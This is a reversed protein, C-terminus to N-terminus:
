AATGEPTPDPTSPEPATMDDAGQDGDDRRSAHNPHCECYSLEGAHLVFGRICKACGSLPSDAHPHANNDDDSKEEPSPGRARTVALDTRVEGGDSIPTAKVPLTSHLTSAREPSRQETSFHANNAVEVSPMTLTSVPEPSGRSPTAVSGTQGTEVDEQTLTTEIRRRHAMRAQRRQQTERERDRVALIAGQHEDPTPVDVLDLVDTGIILRYEDSKGARRNGRRVVEILQADRLTKLARRVVASSVECEIAARAVGPFIHSGDNNARGALYFAVLKVTSGLRARRVLDLWDPVTAAIDEAV